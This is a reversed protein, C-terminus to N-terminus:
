VNEVEKYKWVFNKTKHLVGKCCSVINQSKINTKREAERIGGYEAIFKGQLDYQLVPKSKPNEKGKKIYQKLNQPTYTNDKNISQMHYSAWRLNCIRNDLKDRNIHDVTPLKEPNPIFTEALLRHIAKRRQKGNKCLLVVLYGYKNIQPKLIIEHWNGKRAISKINGLKSIKYLGEYGKIDKWTEEM